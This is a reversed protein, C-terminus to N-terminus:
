TPTCADDKKHQRKQLSTSQGCRNINWSVYSEHDITKFHLHMSMDQAGILPKDDHQDFALFKIEYGMKFRSLRNGFMTRYEPSLELKKIEVPQYQVDNIRLFISWPTNKMDLVVEYLSLIYFTIYHNNEELLRRLMIKKQRDDLGMRDVHMTLYLEQITDSVWLVDFIARTVLEKYVRISRIYYPVVSVNECVETGQYFTDYGWDTFRRCGPITLIVVVMIMYWVVSCWKMAREM